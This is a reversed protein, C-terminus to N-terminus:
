NFDYHNMKRIENQTRFVYSGYWFAPMQCQQSIYQAANGIIEYLNIKNLYRFGIGNTKMFM